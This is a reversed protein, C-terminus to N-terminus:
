GSITICKSRVQVIPQLARLTDCRGICNGCCRRNTFRYGSCCLTKWISCPPSLKFIVGDQPIGYRWCWTPQHETVTRTKM